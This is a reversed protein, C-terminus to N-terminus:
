KKGSWSSINNGLCVEVLLTEGSKAPIVHSDHYEGNVKISVIDTGTGDEVFHIDYVCDRFVKKISCEKWSLPLCPNIRLGEM